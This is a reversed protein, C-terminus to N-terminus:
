PQRSEVRTDIFTRNGDSDWFLTTPGRSGPLDMLALAPNDIAQGPFRVDPSAGIPYGVQGQQCDQDGEQGSPTYSRSTCSRCSM